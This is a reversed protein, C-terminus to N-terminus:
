SYGLQFDYVRPSNGLGSPCYNPQYKEESCGHLAYSLISVKALKGQKVEKM